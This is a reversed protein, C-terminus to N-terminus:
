LDVSIELAIYNEFHKEVNHTNKKVTQVCGIVYVQDGVHIKEAVEKAKDTFQVLPVFSLRGNKQVSVKMRLIGPSLAEVRSVTGAIEIANVFPKYSDESDIDFANNMASKTLEITEGYISVLRQNQVDPRPRLSQINGTVRVHNGVEYLEAVKNRLEGTFVVKPFNPKPTANKTNVTLIVAKPTVFKHVIIGQLVVNNTNM